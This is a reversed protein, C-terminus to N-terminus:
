FIIPWSHAIKIGIYGIDMVGDCSVENCRWQDMGECGEVV